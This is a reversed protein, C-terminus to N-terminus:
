PTIKEIAKVFAPHFNFRYHSYHVSIELSIHAKHIFDIVKDNKESLDKNVEHEGYFKFYEPNTNHNIDTLYDSREKNM